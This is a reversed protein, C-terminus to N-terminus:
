SIVGRALLAVPFDGLVRELPLRGELTGRLEAGTFLDTYVVGPAVPLWAGQWVAGIPPDLRGELGRQDPSRTRPDRLLRATLRPAVTMVESDGARRAFAVVHEARDGGASIPVYDGGAGFLGPAKRRADLAVYTVFLKIRGDAAERVLERALMAAGGKAAAGRRGRERRARLEALAAARADFDVPRRNDPDVLSDDWLENGLYIDPVGPSTLKLLLQSLSGWMGFTAVARAIPLLAQITPGPSLVRRVFSEV